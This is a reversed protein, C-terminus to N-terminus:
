RESSNFDPALLRGTVADVLRSVEGFDHEPGPSKVTLTGRWVLRATPEKPLKYYGLEVRMGVSGHTVKVFDQAQKYLHESPLYGKLIATARKEDIRPNLTNPKPPEHEDILYVLTLSGPDFRLIYGYLPNHNFLSRGGVRDRLSAFVEGGNFQATEVDVPPHSGLRDLMKISAAKADAPSMSRVASRTNLKGSVYRVRGDLDINVGWSGTANELGVIWLKGPRGWSKGDTESLSTLSLNGTVGMRALFATVKTVADQGDVVRQGPSLLALAAFLFAQM